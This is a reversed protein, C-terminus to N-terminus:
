HVLERSDAFEGVDLWAIGIVLAAAQAVEEQIAIEAYRVRKPVRFRFDSRAM